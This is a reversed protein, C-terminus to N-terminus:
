PPLWAHASRSRVGDQRLAGHATMPLSRCMWASVSSLAEGTKGSSRSSSKTGRPKGGSSEVGLSADREAKRDLAKKPSLSRIPIKYQSGQQWVSSEHEQFHVFQPAQPTPMSKADSVYRHRKSESESDTTSPTVLQVNRRSALNSPDTWSRTISSKIFDDDRRRLIQIGRDAQQLQFKTSGYSGSLLEATDSDSEQTAIQIDHKIQQLARQHKMKMGVLEGELFDGADTESIPRGDQVIEKQIKLPPLRTPASKLHRIFGEMIKSASEKTKSHQFHPASAGRFDAWFKVHNLLERERQYGIERNTLLQWMNTVLAVRAYFEKGCMRKVIEAMKIASASLRVDIIRHLFIVGHIYRGSRSHHALYNAISTLVEADSSHTDDFGPTDILTLRRGNDAICSYENVDKTCSLLSHGIEATRPAGARHGPQLFQNIFSSKGVGTEGVVLINVEDIGDVRSHRTKQPSATPQYRSVLAPEVTDTPQRRYFGQTDEVHPRCPSSIASNLTLNEPSSTPTRSLRAQQQYPYSPNYRRSVTPGPRGDLYVPASGRSREPSTSYSNELCSSVYAQQYPRQIDHHDYSM